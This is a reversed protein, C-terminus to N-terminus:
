QTRLESNNKIVLHFFRWVVFGVIAIREKAPTLTFFNFHRSSINRLQKKKKGLPVMLPSPSCEHHSFSFGHVYIPSVTRFM